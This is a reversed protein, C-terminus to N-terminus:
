IREPRWGEADSDSWYYSSHTVYVPAFIEADEGMIKKIRANAADRINWIAVQWHVETSPVEKIKPM